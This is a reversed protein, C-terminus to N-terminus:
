KSRLQRLGAADFQTLPRRCLEAGGPDSIVWEATGADFQVVVQKGRNIIGVYLKDHYLGIKGCRDVRRPVMVGALSALVAEWSWNEREWAASYPRGSHALGPYAEMRSGFGGHPYCERQVQDEANLRRQLEAPDHCRDPEAWNGAVGQSREVVGNDQPTRPRNWIVGVGLGILWLALPTPLDGWSGWPNGNDVRVSLPRGRRAFCRRLEAQVAGPPVQTFYGQPSFAARCCRERVNTL